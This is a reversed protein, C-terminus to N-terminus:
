CSGSVTASRITQHGDTVMAYVQYPGTTYPGMTDGTITQTTQPNVPAGTSGSYGGNVFYKVTVGDVSPFSHVSVPISITLGGGSTCQATPAGTTFGHICATVTSWSRTVQVSNPATATVRVTGGTDDGAVGISVWKSQAGGPGFTLTKRGNIGNIKTALTVTVPGASVHVTATSTAQCAPFPGKTVYLMISTVRPSPPETSPTPNAPSTPGDSPIPAPAVVAAPSPSAAALPAPSGGTFAQAIAAGAGVLVVVAGVAVLALRGRHRGPASRHTTPTDRDESAGASRAAVVAEPEAASAAAVLVSTSPVREQDTRGSLSSEASASGEVAGAAIVDESPVDAASIGGGNSVDASVMDAGLVDATAVAAGLADANPADTNPSDASVVDPSLVDARTVDVGLADANLVGVLMTRADAISLRGRPDKALLGDIVPTLPGAREPRPHPHIAAAFAAAMADEAHFPSQGEVAFFLTAGLGFLDAAPTTAGPVIQEPAIYGPSGPYGSSGPGVGGTRVIPFGTLMAPSDPGVLVNSPNVDRHIVGAAHAVELANLLDVGVRAVDEPAWPGDDSVAQELSRGPVPQMVIWLRGDDDIVDYVAVMSPHTLRAVGNADEIASRIAVTRDDDGLDDPFRVEHAAVPRDLQTDHADWVTGVDSQSIITGIRYRGGLLYGEHSDTRSM